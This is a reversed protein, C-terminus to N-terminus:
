RSTSSSSSPGSSPRSKTPSSSWRISGRELNAGVTGWFAEVDGDTDILEMVAGAPDIGEAECRGEHAACISEVPWYRVANAAYDLLQGVVERWSRTDRSRKVEVLTPVGDQDLFAHDVYGVGRQEGAMAIERSVVIWRWPVEPNMQDGGVLKPHQELYAQLVNETDAPREGMEVLGGDQM